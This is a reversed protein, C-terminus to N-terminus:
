TYKENVGKLVVTATAKEMRMSYKQEANKTNYYSIM